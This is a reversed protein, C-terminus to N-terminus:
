LCFVDNYYPDVKKVENKATLFNHVMEPCCFKVTGRFTMEAKKGLEIDPFDSLNFDILVYKNYHRSFMINGPKIDFHIIKFLHMIFLSEKLEEMSENDFLTDQFGLCKEM